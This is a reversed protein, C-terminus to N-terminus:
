KTRLEMNIEKVIKDCVWSIDENEYNSIGHLAVISICKQIILEAFKDKNFYSETYNGRRDDWGKLTETSDEIMKAINKNRM